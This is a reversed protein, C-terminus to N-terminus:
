TRNKQPTSNESDPVNETPTRGSRLQLSKARTIASKAIATASEARSAASQDVLTMSKEHLVMADERLARSREIMAALKTLWEEPHALAPVVLDDSKEFAPEDQSPFIIVPALALQAHVIKVAPDAFARGVGNVIVADPQPTAKLASELDDLKRCERISYGASKLVQVRSWEDPGFYLVSAAM